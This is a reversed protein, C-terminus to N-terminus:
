KFITSDKYYHAFDVGLKEEMGPTTVELMWTSPNYGDRIPPVGNM